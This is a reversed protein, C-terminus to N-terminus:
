IKDLFIEFCKM